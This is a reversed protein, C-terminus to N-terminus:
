HLGHRVWWPEIRAEGVRWGGNGLPELDVVYNARSSDLEGDRQYPYYHRVVVMSGGDRAWPGFNFVLMGAPLLDEPSVPLCNSRTKSPYFPDCDLVPGPYEGRVYAALEDAVVPDWVKSWDDVVAVQSLDLPRRPRHYGAALAPLPEEGAVKAVAEVIQRGLSERDAVARVGKGECGAVVALFAFGSVLSARVPKREKQLHFAM